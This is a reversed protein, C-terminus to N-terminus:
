TMAVQRADVLFTGAEVGTGPELFDIEVNLLFDYLLPHIPLWIRYVWLHGVSKVSKCLNLKIRLICGHLASFTKPQRFWAEPTFGRFCLMKKYDQKGSVICLWWGVFKITNSSRPSSSHPILASCSFIKKNIKEHCDRTSNAGYWFTVNIIKGRNDERASQLKEWLM